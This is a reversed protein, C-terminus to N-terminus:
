SLGRLPPAVLGGERKLYCGRVNYCGGKVRFAFARLHMQIYAPNPCSPFLLFYGREGKKTSPLPPGRLSNLLYSNSIFTDPDPLSQKTGVDTKSYRKRNGNKVIIKM